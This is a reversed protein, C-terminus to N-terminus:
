EASAHKELEVLVTQLVEPTEDEGLMFIGKYLCLLVEESKEEGVTNLLVAYIKKKVELIADRANWVVEMDADATSGCPM